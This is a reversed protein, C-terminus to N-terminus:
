KVGVKGAKAELASIAMKYKGKPLKDLSEVKLYKLFNPKNVELSDVIATIESLQKDSIYEVKQNEVANLVEEASALSTDIGIGLMGLARGVASTECNEIYSTKNIFTSGEKEYATGTFIRTPASVDPTIVAKMIVTGGELGHISTVISGNPYLRHFEKVRENVEIYKKGQIEISKM